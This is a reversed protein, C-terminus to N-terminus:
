EEDSEDIPGENSSNVDDILMSMTNIFIKDANDHEYEAINIGTKESAIARKENITLYTISELSQLSQFVEDRLEEISSLDLIIEQNEELNEAFIENLFEAVKKAIPILTQKYLKIKDERVNNYTSSTDWIMTLPVGMINAIMKHAIILGETWDLDKPNVDTPIFEVNKGILGLKGANQYGGFASNLQTELEEKDKKTKLAELVKFIGSKNGRNKLLSNNHKIIFNELDTIMALSELISRGATYGALESNQDISKLFYFRELDKGSYTTLGIDISEIIPKTMSYNILFTNPAYLLLYASLSGNIKEALVRGGFLYYMLLYELFESKKTLPSPKKLTKDIFDNKVEIQKEEKKGNREIMVTEVVKYDINLFNEKILKFCTAVSPNNYISVKYVDYNTEYAPPSFIGTIKQMLKDKRSFGISKTFFNKFEM